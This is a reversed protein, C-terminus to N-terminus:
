EQQAEFKWTSTSSGTDLTGEILSGSAMKKPPEDQSSTTDLWICGVLEDTFTSGDERTVTASLTEECTGGAFYGRHHTGGTMMNYTILTGDDPQLQVTKSGEWSWHPELTMTGAISWELTGSKLRYIQGVLPDVVPEFIVDTKFTMLVGPAPYTQTRTVTGKWQWCSMDSSYVVSDLGAPKRLYNPSTPDIESNSVILVIEELRQDEADRCFFRTPQFSWDEYQWEKGEVKILAQVNASQMADLAIPQPVFTESGPFGQWETKELKWNIGNHFFVSHLADENFDLLLYNAALHKLEVPLPVEGTTVAVLEYDTLDYPLGDWDHYDSEPPSNWNKRVFKPWQEQFGGVIALDVADLSNFSESNTWMDEIVTVGSGTQTLFYPFLYAGYRRGYGRGGRTALEDLPMTPTDLFKPALKHETQSKPYVHEGFWTATTEALWHHNKCGAKWKYSLQVAHFIEHAATELMERGNVNLSKARDLLIYAPTGTCGRNYPTTVGWAGPLPVLYIDLDNINTGGSSQWGDPLWSRSPMVQKLKASITNDIAAAIGSAKSQDGTRSTIYWIKVGSAATVFQWTGAQPDVIDTKATTDFVAANSYSSSFWSNPDPPPLLFPALTNQTATPLTSWQEQVDLMVPSDIVDADNGQYQAPLRADGFIAYVKYILATEADIKGAALAQDILAESSPRTTQATAGNHVLPLYVTEDPLPAAAAPMAPLMMFLALLGMLWILRESDRVLALVNM